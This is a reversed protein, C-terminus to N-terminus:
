RLEMGEESIVAYLLKPSETKEKGVRVAALLARAAQEGKAEDNAYIVALTDGARVADGVRCHLILGVAPDIVDEKRVRGAGLGRAILGVELADIGSVFGDEEAPVPIQLKAQPLLRVDTVAEGEGGQAEVMERLKELGAGSELAHLLMARGEQTDKCLGALLLMREGLLLSVELLPGKVRGALVDIAEKVELANGIHSGLPEEMSTILANVRRGARKGIEVMAQGLELAEPLTRMLAGGGVKIDLVIGDAGMALKKSMVSSAILPISDVTSTVDRLAYLRKDAPALEGSQAAVCCGVRRVIDVAEQESLETRLGRISEMKDITGGTHGLGRGSMKIVKGGCAAVLPVLVLTTTDGVGGTSHKDVAVGGVDPKLMDGTHAMSLTLAATERADMGNLRIAMLLASLQYDPTKPDAAARAFCDIEEQTLSRGLKKSEIVEILEM